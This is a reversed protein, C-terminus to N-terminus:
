VRARGQVAGVDPAASALDHALDALWRGPPLVDDDCFAIWEANSARWGDNRAAAPGASRGRLVALRERLWAPLPGTGLVGSANRRDDVVLVRGPAPGECAGLAALM